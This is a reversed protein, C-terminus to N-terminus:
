SYATASHRNATTTIPRQKGFKPRQQGCRAIKAVPFTLQVVPLTDIPSTFQVVPWIIILNCRAIGGGVQVVPFTAVPAIYVSCRSIGVDLGIVCGGYGYGYGGYCQRLM